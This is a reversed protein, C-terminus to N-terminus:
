TKVTVRRLVFPFQSSSENDRFTQECVIAVNCGQRLQYTVQTSHLWVFDSLTRPELNFDLALEFITENQIFRLGDTNKAAATSTQSIQKINIYTSGVSYLM